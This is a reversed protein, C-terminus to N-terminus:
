RLGTTQIFSLKSKYSEDQIRDNISPVHDMLFSSSSESLGQNILEKIVKLSIDEIIDFKRNKNSESMLTNIANYTYEGLIELNEVARHLWKYYPAYKKNLLFVLAIINNCFLSEAQTAAFQAGRKLSRPYNYQGSQAAIISRSLIKKLRIDEPYYSLLIERWETFEGSLDFFVKGNTCSALNEEPIKLWESVMFPPHDLGTYRLYFSKISCVGIRFEEGKSSFRPGFGNFKKPLGDYAKQVSGGLLNFDNESLWICFSPGWDHDRSIEDDFGFCESGSGVMGAATRSLLEPYLNRLMPLGTERFYKESLELGQM